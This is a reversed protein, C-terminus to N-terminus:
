SGVGCCRKVCFPALHPTARSAPLAQHRHPGLVSGPAHKRLSRQHSAVNAHSAGSMVLAQQQTVSM